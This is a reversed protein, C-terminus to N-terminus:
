VGTEARVSALVSRLWSVESELSTVRDLLEDVVGLLGEHRNGINKVCDLLEELVEDTRDVPRPGAGLEYKSADKSEM